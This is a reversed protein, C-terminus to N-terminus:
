EPVEAITAAAARRPRAETRRPRVAAPRSALVREFVAQVECAVQQWSRRAGAEAIAPRDWPRGLAAVIASGLSTADGDPVIIGLHPSRIQERNGGVDTAVVPTGAALSEAIANCWGESRSSNALVDAANYMLNLRDPEQPGLFLIQSRLNSIKQISPEASPPHITRNIRNIDALLGAAFNSEGRRSGVLVLRVDGCANQVAPWVEILRDFGKLRQLHGVALVYRTRLDWGLQRRANDRDMPHFISTDVGNPIVDVHLDDGAVERVCRALSESVAIIGAVRRLMSRIQVRRGPKRALSVIKGRVTVVVPIGLRRGALYAGVGDPYEFHADILDYPARGAGRSDAIARYLARAYAFGDTAWGIVPISFMRPYRTPLLDRQQCSIQESLWVPSGDAVAPLRAASGPVGTGCRLLPCWPQPSIVDVDHGIRALAVARRQIFIGRDPEAPTPYCLTTTLVRM